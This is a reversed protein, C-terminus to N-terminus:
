IANLHPVLTRRKTLLIRSITTIIPLNDSQLRNTRLSILIQTQKISGNSLLEGQSKPIAIPYTARIGVADLYQVFTGMRSYIRQPLPAPCLLALCFFFKCDWVRGLRGLDPQFLLLNLLVFLLLNGDRNLLM